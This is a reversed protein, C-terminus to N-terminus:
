QNLLSYILADLDNITQINPLTFYHCHELEGPESYYAPSLEVTRERINVEIELEDWGKGEEEREERVIRRYEFTSDQIPEFSREELQQKTITFM